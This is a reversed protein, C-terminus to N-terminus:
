EDMAKWCKYYADQRFEIVTPLTAKFNGYDLEQILSVMFPALIPRPIVIRCDNLVRPLNSLLEISMYRLTIRNKFEIM